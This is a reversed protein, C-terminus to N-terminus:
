QPAAIGRTLIQKSWGHAKRLLPTELFRYSVGAIALVIATHLLLLACQQPIPMAVPVIVIEQWVYIGYSRRGVWALHANELARTLPIKPNASLLLVLAGLLFAQLTRMDIGKVPFATLGLLALVAAIMPHTALRSILLRFKASRMRLAFLSAYGFFDLLLHTQELTLAPSLSSHSLFIPRTVITLVIIAVVAVQSRRFGLIALMPAWVLYFHEEASLSWFHGTYWSKGQFYNSAFFAAAAVERSHVPLIGLSGCALLLAFYPILPPLIRFARRLYFAKLARIPHYAAIEAALRSTILYGSIAFFLHVGATGMRGAVVAFLGSATFEFTHAFLVCGIAIARLGDLAPIHEIQHPIEASPHGKM